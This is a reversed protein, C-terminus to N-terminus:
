VEGGGGGGGGVLLSTALYFGTIIHIDTYVSLKGAGALWVVSM